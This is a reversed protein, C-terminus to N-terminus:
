NNASSSKKMESFLDSQEAEFLRMAINCRTCVVDALVTLTVSNTCEPCRYLKKEKKRSSKNELPKDELDVKSDEKM